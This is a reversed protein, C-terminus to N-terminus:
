ETLVPNSGHFGMQKSAQKQGRKMKHQADTFHTQFNERMKDGTPRNNWKECDETLVSTQYIVTYLETMVENENILCQAESVFERVGFDHEIIEAFPRNPDWSEKLRKTNKSLM